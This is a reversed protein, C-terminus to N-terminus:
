CYPTPVTSAIEVRFRLASNEYQGNVYALLTIIEKWYVAGSLSVKGM